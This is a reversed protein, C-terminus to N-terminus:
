MKSRSKYFYEELMLMASSPPDVDMKVTVVYRCEPDSIKSHEFTMSAHREFTQNDLPSNKELAAIGPIQRAQAKNLKPSLEFYIGSDSWRVQGLYKYTQRDSSDLVPLRCFPKDVGSKGQAKLKRTADSLQDVAMGLKDQLELNEKALKEVIEIGGANEDVFKKLLQNERILENNKKKLANIERKAQSLNADLERIETRLENIQANLIDKQNAFDLDNSYIFIVLVIIIAVIVELVSANRLDGKRENARGLM